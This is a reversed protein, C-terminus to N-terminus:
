SKIWEIQGLVTIQFDFGQVLANLQNHTIVIQARYEENCKYAGNRANLDKAPRAEQHHLLTIKGYSTGVPITSLGIVKYLRKKVDAEDLGWVEESSNEYFIVM